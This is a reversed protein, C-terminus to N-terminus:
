LEDVIEGSLHVFVIGGLLLLFLAFAAPYILSDWQPFMQQFFIAHYADVMPVIPNMALMRRLGQPLVDIVYVVPTLWFWFQLLVGTFQGVDRFFVNLTGLLLGLGLAFALQIALVLPFALLSWGPLKGILILFAFYLVMTIAFHILSSLLTITPLCVRPFSTKKILSANEIFVSNLRTILEAFLNWPLLAACLYISFGFAGGNNNPLRSGMVQSFILTFVVIMALPNIVAWIGGLLSGRYRTQFERMVAGFVFGRFNWLSRFM